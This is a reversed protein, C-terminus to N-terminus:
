RESKSVACNPGYWANQSSATRSRESQVFLSHKAEDIFRAIRERGGDPCWIITSNQHPVFPQRSWDAEFGEIVEGVEDPDTTIVAFDRADDINDPDMNLSGIWAVADDVVMSKEHTVVFAPNADLVDIGAESLVDHSTRNQLEGSRRAPNLPVRIKIQRKHAKVLASLVRPDSLSFMKMRLSKVAAGIADLIPAVSHDPMVILKRM